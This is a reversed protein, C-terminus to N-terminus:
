PFYGKPFYRPAQKEPKEATANKELTELIAQTDSKVRQIADLIQGTTVVSAGGPKINSMDCGQGKQTGQDFASECGQSHM